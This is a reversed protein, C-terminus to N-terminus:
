EKKLRSALHPPNDVDRDSRKVGPFSVRYKNYVLSPPSLAPRSPHPFEQRWRSETWSRGARLLNAIGVSTKWGVKESVYLGNEVDM